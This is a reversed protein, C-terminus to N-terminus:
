YGEVDETWVKQNINQICKEDRGHMSCTRGDWGRRNGRRIINPTSYLSHLDEKNTKLM